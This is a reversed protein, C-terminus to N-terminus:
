FGVSVGFRISLPDTYPSDPDEYSFNYLATYFITASRSVAQQFGGGALLSNFQKREKSIVNGFINITALEYDLYEYEAQLYISKTVKYRGFLTAGYDTTSYSENFRNDTRDRYLLSIGVAAKPNIKYGILPSLEFYQVSGFALSVGGGYFLNSKDAFSYQISFVYISLFALSSLILRKRINNVNRM